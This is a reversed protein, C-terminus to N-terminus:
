ESAEPLTIVPSGTGIVFVNKKVTQTGSKFTVANHLAHSGAAYKDVTEIKGAHYGDTILVVANEALPYVEEVENSELNLKISDGTAYKNSDLLLNRGGSLNLQVKGGPVISKNKIRCLVFKAEDASIPVVTLKGKGTLLMRYALDLKPVVITDMLGVPDKPDKVARGNVIMERNGIMRGAERATDCIKMMDRLVIVAPLSHEVPHAGPAQKVAYEHIKRPIAWSRPAALRKMHDSM